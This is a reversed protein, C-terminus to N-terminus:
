LGVPAQSQTESDAEMSDICREERLGAMLQALKDYTETYDAKVRPINQHHDLWWKLKEPHRKGLESLFGLPANHASSNNGRHCNFCLTVMNNLDHRYARHSRHILHHAQPHSTSGCMICRFGDRTRCILSALALCKNDQPKRPPKRRSVKAERGERSRRKTKTPQACPRSKLPARRKLLTRKM